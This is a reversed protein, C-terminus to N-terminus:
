KIKIPELGYEFERIDNEVSLVGGTFLIGVVIELALEFVIGTFLGSFYAIEAVSLNTGSKVLDILGSALKSIIRGFDLNKFAGILDDIRELLMPGQTKFDRLLESISAAGDFLYQVLSIIGCVAEVFWLNEKVM